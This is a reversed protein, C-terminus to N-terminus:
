NINIENKIIEVKPDIVTNKIDTANICRGTKPNIIKGEPCGSKECKGTEQNRKQNEKCIKVCRGTKPNIEKGKDCNQQM